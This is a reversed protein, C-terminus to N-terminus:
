DGLLADGHQREIVEARIVLVCEKGIPHLIVNKCSQGFHCVELDNRAGADHTVGSARLTIQAFDSARKANSVDEFAADPTGAAFYAHGCLQNISSGVAM